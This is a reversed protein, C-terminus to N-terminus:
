DPLVVRVNGAEELDADVIRWPNGAADPEKAMTVPGIMNFPRGDSYRGYMQLPVTAAITDNRETAQPRGVLFHLEYYNGMTQQFRELSLANRSYDANWLAHASTFDGAELFAAYQQLALGAGQIGEVDLDGEPLPTRDDPLGGPEGPAPPVIEGEYDVSNTEETADNVVSHDAEATQTQREARPVDQEEPPEPNGCGALAVFSVAMISAEILRRSHFTGHKKM